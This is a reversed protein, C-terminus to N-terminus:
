GDDVKVSEKRHSAQHKHLLVKRTFGKDCEKCKFPKQGTHQLMHRKRDTPYMFSKDCLECVYPREQTHTRLHLRLNAKAKFRIPCFNCGFPTEESHLLSDHHKLYSKRSFGKNCIQCIHKTHEPVESHLKQHALLNSRSRFKKSCITCPFPKQSTHIREHNELLARNIFRKGCSSCQHQKLQYANRRHLNFGKVNTYRKYCINCEFPKEPNTSKLSEHIKKSHLQLEPKTNFAQECGCCRFPIYQGSNAVPVKKEHPENQKLTISEVESDVMYTVEYKTSGTGLIAQGNQELEGKQMCEPVVADIIRIESPEVGSSSNEVIHNENLAIDSGTFITSEILEKSSEELNNVAPQFENNEFQNLIHTPISRDKPDICELLVKENEPETADELSQVKVEVVYETEINPPIHEVVEDYLIKYSIIPVDPDTNSKYSAFQCEQQIMQRFREESKICQQKLKLASKLKAECQSCAVSPLGCEDSIPLGCLEQIMNAIPNLGVFINVSKLDVTLSAACIRCFQM